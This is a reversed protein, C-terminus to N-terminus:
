STATSIWALSPSHLFSCPSARSFAVGRPSAAADGQARAEPTSDRCGGTDTLPLGCAPVYHKQKLVLLREPEEPFCQIFKGKNSVSEAM